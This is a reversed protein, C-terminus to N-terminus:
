LVINDYTFHLFFVSLLFGFTTFVFFPLIISKDFHTTQLLLFDLKILLSFAFNKNPLVVPLIRISPGIDIYYYLFQQSSIKIFYYFLARKNNSTNFFYLFYFVLLQLSLFHFSSIKMLIHLKRCDFDLIILSCSAFPSLPFMCNTLFTVKSGKISKM